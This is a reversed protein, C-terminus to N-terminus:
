HRAGFPRMTVMPEIVDPLSVYSFCMYIWQAQNLRERSMLKYVSHPSDPSFIAYTAEMIKALVRPDRALTPSELRNYCYVLGDLNQACRGSSRLWWPMTQPLMNDLFARKIFEEYRRRQKPNTTLAHAHMYGEIFAGNLTTARKMLWEADGEAAREDKPDGTLRAYAYAVALTCGITYTNKEPAYIRTPKDLKVTPRRGYDTLCWGVGIGGGPCRFSDRYGMYARLSNMFQKRQAGGTYNVVSAIALATEGGDAVYCAEGKPTIGYGMRYGGDERQKRIMALGWDVASRRYRENGTLEYAGLLGRAGRNDVFSIGSFESDDAGQQVFFEGMDRITKMTDLSLSFQSNVIPAAISIAGSASFSQWNFEKTPVRLLILQSRQGPPLTKQRSYSRSKEGSSLAIKAHLRVPSTGRNFVPMRLTMTVRQSEAEFAPRADGCVIGSRLFKAMNALATRLAANSPLGLDVGELGFAAWVSDAYPGRDHLILSAVPGLRKGWRDLAWLIPVCRGGSAPQPFLQQWPSTKQSRPSEATVTWGSFPGAIPAPSSVLTQGRSPVLAAARAFHRTGNFCQIQVPNREARITKGLFRKALAGGLDLFDSRVLVESPVAAEAFRINALAFGRPGKGVIVTPFGFWLKSAKNIRFHDYGKGREKSAYSLFSATHIRYETWESTLPLVYKWRSHDKEQLELCLFPTDADGKAKFILLEAGMVAAPVDIGAYAYAHLNPTAFRWCPQGREDRMRSLELRDQKSRHDLGWTADNSIRFRIQRAQDAGLWRGKVEFIPVRFARGALSIFSGGGRLFKDLVKGGMAPYIDPYPLVLLDFRTPSLKEKSCLEATNLTEVKFGTERLAAAVALPSTPPQWPLVPDNWVAAVNTMRRTPLAVTTDVTLSVDDLWVDCVAAGTPDWVSFRVVCTSAGDPIPRPTDAGFSVVRRKWDFAPSSPEVTMGSYMKVFSGAADYFYLRLGFNGKKVGANKICASVIYRAHWLLDEGIRLRRASDIGALQGNLKFRICRKGAPAAGPLGVITVAGKGLSPVWSLLGQEFGANPIMNANEAHVRPWAAAVLAAVCVNTFIRM